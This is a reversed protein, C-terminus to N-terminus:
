AAGLGTFTTPPAGGAPFASFAATLSPSNVNLLGDAGGAAVHFDINSSVFGGGGACELTGTLHLVPAVIITRSVVTTCFYLRKNALIRFVPPLIVECGKPDMVVFQSMQLEKFCAPNSVKITPAVISQGGRNRGSGGGGGGSVTSDYSNSSHSPMGFMCMGGAGGSQCDAGDKCESSDCCKCADGGTAWKQICADWNLRASRVTCCTNNEIVGSFTFLYIPVNKSSVNAAAANGPIQQLPAVAISADINSNSVIQPNALTQAVLYDNYTAYVLMKTTLVYVQECALFWQFTIEVPSTGFLVNGAAIAAPPFGAAIAAAIQSSPVTVQNPGPCIKFTSRVGSLLDRTQRCDSTMKLRLDVICSGDNVVDFLIPSRDLGQLYTTDVSPADYGPPLITPPHGVQTSMYYFATTSGIELTTVQRSSPVVTLTVNDSLRGSNTGSGCDGKPQQVVQSESAMVASLNVTNKKTSVSRQEHHHVTEEDGGTSSASGSKPSKGRRKKEHHRRHHNEVDEDQQQQRAARKSKSAGEQVQQHHRRAHHGSM